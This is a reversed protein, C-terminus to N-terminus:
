KQDSSGFWKNYIKDYTGNEHLTKLAKNVDEQLQKNDKNMAMVMPAGEKPTGVIKADKDAGQKLYYMAVPNDLVIADVTGAKLEMFEQAISDIQKVTGAGAEQALKAHQTGVQAGVTKGQLDAWDKINNNDKAVVIIYGNKDFYPDSFLVQKEREPTADMGSAVLDIQNSQIAPILADFGMSKFEMKAGMEKCVADALDLDFGVYKENEVFEFPPFTTEAGVRIVKADSSAAAKDGSSGGCGAIGIAALAVVGAAVMMKLKKNM